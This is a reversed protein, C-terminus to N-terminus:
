RLFRPFPFWPSCSTFSAVTFSSLLRPAVTIYYKPICPVRRFFLDRHLLGVTAAPGQVSITHHLRVDHTNQQAPLPVVDSEKTRSGSNRAELNKREAAWTGAHTKTSRWLRARVHLHRDEDRAQANRVAFHIAADFIRIGPRTQRGAVCCMVNAEHNIGLIPNGQPTM